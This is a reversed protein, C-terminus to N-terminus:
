LAALTKAWVWLGGSDYKLSYKKFLEISENRLIGGEIKPIKYSPMDEHKRNWNSLLETAGDGPSELAFFIEGINFTMCAGLCMMCPELTTYIRTERRLGPYPKVKDAEDLALLEAHVLWRGLSVECGM